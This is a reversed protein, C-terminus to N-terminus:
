NEGAGPFSSREMLMNLSLWEQEGVSMTKYGGPNRKFGAKEYCKIAPLNHDYVNLDVKQIEVDEFAMNLLLSIIRSCYGKGRLDKEGILIRCLRKQHAGPKMIEAHGIVKQSEAERIKFVKREKKAVYEQLQEKTLPYEFLSGAFLVLSERSDIWSILREFDEETFPEIQIM